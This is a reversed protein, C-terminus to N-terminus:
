YRRRFSMISTTSVHCSCIVADDDLDAGDDEGKKGIIFDQPEVEIPKKKKIISVLKVFDSTEGIM